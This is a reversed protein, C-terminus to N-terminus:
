KNNRKNKKIKVVVFCIIIVIIFLSLIKIINSKDFINKNLPDNYKENFVEQSTLDLSKSSDTYIYDLPNKSANFKLRYDLIGVGVPPYQLKFLKEDFDILKASKVTYTDIEGIGRDKKNGKTHGYVEVIVKKPISIGNIKTYNSFIYDKKVINNLYRHSIKSINGSPDYDIIYFTHKSGSIKKLGFKSKGATYLEFNPIYFGLYPTRDYISDFPVGVSIITLGKKDSQKNNLYDDVYGDIHAFDNGTYISSSVINAEKNNMGVYYTLDNSFWFANNNGIYETTGKYVVSNSKGGRAISDYKVSLSKGEPIKMEWSNAIANSVLLTIAMITLLTKIM